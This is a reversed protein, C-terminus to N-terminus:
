LGKLVEMDGSRQYYPGVSRSCLHLRPRSQELVM